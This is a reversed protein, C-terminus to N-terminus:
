HMHSSFIHNIAVILNLHLLKAFQSVPSQLSISFVIMFLVAENACCLKKENNLSAAMDAEQPSKTPQM